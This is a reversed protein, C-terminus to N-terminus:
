RPNATFDIKLSGNLTERNAAIAAAIANADGAEAVVSM